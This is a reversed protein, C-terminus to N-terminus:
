RVPFIPQRIKELYADGLPSATTQFTMEGKKTKKKKNTQKCSIKEGFM